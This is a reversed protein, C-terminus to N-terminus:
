IVPLCLKEVESVYFNFNIPFIATKVDNCPCVSWGSEVGIRRWVGPNKALPPMIKFLQGGETSVYYRQTRELDYDVGDRHLVLKSGKTVKIRGMFDMKDSWSELTERIPKGHILVQEAVKPIVLFSHDKHWDRVGGTMKEHDYAGKMKVKGSTTQALYSNVDRIVMKKYEADELVLGTLQEWQKCVTTFTEKADRRLYVTIGDTNTQIIKVSDRLFHVIQDVLMSIMMQGSITIQMTFRPDFFISYKDNSKGYAGNGALKYAANLPTGKKHKAREDVISEKYIKTFVPGLHEPYYGRTIAISPYLGAVDIDYIMWEDNAVFTQNEVSAHIGGTGYVFDVGAVHAVIEFAGKTETITQHKLWDLIRNFEPHDFRIFDPVCEDLYIQARPTQRMQRGFPGYEYCQVGAQELAKQFIMVGIKTDDANIVDDGLTPILDERLKLEDKCKDFFVHTAHVDHFCYDILIDMQESNLMTGVPFPLDSIRDLQLVFELAKLSTTRARNNYHKMRFLDFQRIYRDNAYIMNAFRDTDQSQIIAIARDYMQKATVKGNAKIFAHWLPYDFGLGNFTVVTSNTRRLHNFFEMLEKSQNVRDSIEYSARIGCEHEFCVLFCNPFTESDGVWYDIM